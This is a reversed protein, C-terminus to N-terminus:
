EQEKDAKLINLAKNLMDRDMYGFHCEYVPIDLKEALWAYTKRRKAVPHKNNRWISDFLEHCQMRLDRMKADALIGMAQRPRPKHTGVFAGCEKCLYCYGSGYQRGYIKANSTYEVKGGCINCKTPYLEIM